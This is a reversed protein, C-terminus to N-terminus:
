PLSIDVPTAIAPDTGAVAPVVFGDMADCDCEYAIHVNVREVFDIVKTSYSMAGLRSVEFFGALCFVNFATVGSRMVTGFCVTWLTMWVVFFVRIM